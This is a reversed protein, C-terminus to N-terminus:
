RTVESDIDFLMVFDGGPVLDGDGDIPKSSRDRVPVPGTGSIVLRYRDPALAAPPVLAFITPDNSRVEIRLPVIETENGEGFSRDGGARVLHVNDNSLTTADLEFNSTVVISGLEFDVHAAEVPYVAALQAPLSALLSSPTVNRPAAAGDLIWQRLAAIADAPLPPGGLPMRGGVAATGSVKQLLYSADPNGPAIRKLAPQEVSPQNVIAAYSADETLRLGLPAGAGAHCGTCYPTFVHTQLSSFEATLPATPDNTPRGNSDLGAGSGACGALGACALVTM